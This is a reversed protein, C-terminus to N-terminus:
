TSGPVPAPDVCDLDAPGVLVVPLGAAAALHAGAVISAPADDGGMADVVIPLM